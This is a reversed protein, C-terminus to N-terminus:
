QFPCNIRVRSHAGQAVLTGAKQTTPCIFVCKPRRHLATKKTKRLKLKFIHAEQAIGVQNGLTDSGFDIIKKKNAGGANNLLVDIKNYKEKIQNSLNKINKVLSLDCELFDLNENKSFSVIEDIAKKGKDPNRGILCVHYGKAAISKAAALGIGDTAGSIIINKSQM